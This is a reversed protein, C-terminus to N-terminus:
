LLSSLCYFWILEEFLRKTLLDLGNMPVINIGPSLDIEWRLTISPDKAFPWSDTFFKRLESSQRHVTDAICCSPAFITISLM